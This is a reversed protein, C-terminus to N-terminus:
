AKGHTNEVVDAIRKAADKVVFKDANKVNEEYVRRNKHMERIKSLVIAPTADKQEIYEGIGIDKVLRANDLQEDSQGFQLPILLSIKHLALLEMITNAGARSIIIDASKLVFGIESPLIFKKLIYKKRLSEPLSGAKQSLKDFDKTTQSDGVQHIVYFDTLLDELIEYIISNIFHSGTSGGTIYIVPGADLKFDTQIEFAELRMPNGTFVTKRSPFYQGSSEFSVCVKAAVRSIFKASLGAKQTQEHLVIPIKLISAALCVPFSIYGGFTLVADPKYDKLVKLSAIFGPATKALSSITSKTFKRQLRGTKIEFFAFNERKAIIYELSEGLDAEFPHRRGAIAIEHGRKTLESILAYAPSFHGGTILIKM